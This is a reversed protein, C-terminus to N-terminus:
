QERVMLLSLLLLLVWTTLDAKFTCADAILISSPDSSTHEPWAEVVTTAEVVATEEIGTTSVESSYCESLDFKISLNNM